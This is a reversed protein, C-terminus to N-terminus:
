PQASLADKTLRATDEGLHEITEKWSAPLRKKMGSDLTDFLQEDEMYRQMPLVRFDWNGEGQYTKKWVITPLYALDVLSVKDSQPDKEFILYAIAGTDAQPPYMNSVFNGLSYFVVGQRGGSEIREIGQLVHPHHGIIVDVGGAILAPALDKQTRNPKLVREAGWHLLAIVVDAGAARARDTDALIKKENLDNYAWAKFEDPIRGRGVNSGYTATVFAFKIGEHEVICPTENEQQNRFAGTYTFGRAQLTDLTSLLGQWGKDLIHNNSYSLVDFGAMELMDLYSDPANFNLTGSSGTYGFSAGAVPTELNGITIDAASLLPAVDELMSKFDYTDSARDYADYVMYKHCMLDGVAAISVRVPPQPTPTPTPTVVTTPVATPTSTPQQTESIQPMVGTPSPPASSSPSHTCGVLLFLVALAIIMSRRFM